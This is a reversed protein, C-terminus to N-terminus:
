TDVEVGYRELLAAIEPRKALQKRQGKNINDWLTQLADHTETVVADVAATLEVRTM